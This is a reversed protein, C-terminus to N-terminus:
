KMWTPSQRRTYKLIPAKENMYYNRYSTIIDSTIYKDPMNLPFSTLGIEPMNNPINDRLWEMTPITKHEKNFRYTYERQQYYMTKLLWNYNSVSQKVWLVIPHNLAFPKYPIDIRKPTLHHHVNCLIQCTDSPTKVVHKDCLMKSSAKQDHDLIYINM